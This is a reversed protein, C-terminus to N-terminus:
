SDGQRQSKLENQNEPSADALRKLHFAKKIDIQQPTSTLSKNVHRKKKSQKPKEAKAKNTGSRTPSSCVSTSIKSPPLSSDPQIPSDHVLASSHALLSPNVHSQGPVVDHCVVEMQNDTQNQNVTKDNVGKETVTTESEEDDSEYNDSDQKVLNGDQDGLKDSSEVSQQEKTLLVHSLEKLLAQLMNKGPWYTPACNETVFPSMGSAWFRSPGAEALVKDKNEM